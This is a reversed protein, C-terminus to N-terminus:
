TESHESFLGAFEAAIRVATHKENSLHGGLLFVNVFRCHIPKHLAQCM